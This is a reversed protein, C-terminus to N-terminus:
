ITYLPYLTHSSNLEGSLGIVYRIRTVSYLINENEAGELIIGVWLCFAVPSFVEM